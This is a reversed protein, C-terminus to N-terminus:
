VPLRSWSVAARRWIDLMSWAVAAEGRREDATAVVLWEGVSLGPGQRCLQLSEPDLHRREEIRGVVFRPQAVLVLEVEVVGVALVGQRLRQAEQFLM